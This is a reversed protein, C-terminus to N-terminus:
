ATALALHLAADFDDRASHVTLHQRLALNAVAVTMAILKSRVLVHTAAIRPATRAAFRTIEMRVVGDYSVAHELDDFVTPRLGADLLQEIREVVPATFPRSIHGSAQFVVVDHRPQWVILEGRPTSWREREPSLRAYEAAPTETPSLM